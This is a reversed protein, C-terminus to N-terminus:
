SKTPRKALSLDLLADFDYGEWGKSDDEKEAQIIRRLTDETPVLDNFDDSPKRDVRRM